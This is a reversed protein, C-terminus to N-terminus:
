TMWLELSKSGCINYKMGDEVWQVFKTVINDNYNTAIMNIYIDITGYCCKGCKIWSIIINVRINAYPRAILDYEWKKILIVMYTHQKQGYIIPISLKKQLLQKQDNQKAQTDALLCLNIPTVTQIRELAFTKLYSPHRPRFPCYKTYAVQTHRYLLVTSLLHCMHIDTQLSLLLPSAVPIYTQTAQTHNGALLIIYPCPNLPNDM